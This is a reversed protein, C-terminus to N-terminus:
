RSVHSEVSSFYCRDLAPRWRLLTRGRNARRDMANPNNSIAHKRFESARVRRRTPSGLGRVHLYRDGLPNKRWPVRPGQPPNGVGGVGRFPSERECATKRRPVISVAPKVHGLDTAGIRNGNGICFPHRFTECCRASRSMRTPEVPTRPTQLRLPTVAPSSRAACRGLRGAGGRGAEVEAERVKKVIQEVTYHKRTMSIGGAQVLEM